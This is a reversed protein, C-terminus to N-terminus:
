GPGPASERRRRGEARRLLARPAELPHGEEPAPGEPEPFLSSLVGIWLTAWYLPFALLMVVPARGPRGHGWALLRMYGAGYCLAGLLFGLNAAAVRAPTGPDLPVLTALYVLVVVRPLRPVRPFPPPTVPHGTRIGLLASVFWAFYFWMGGAALFFGAPFVLLDKVWSARAAAPAVGPFHDIPSTPPLIARAWGASWTAGDLLWGPFLEEPKGFGALEGFAYTVVGLGFGALLSGELIRRAVPCEPALARGAAVGPLAFLFLHLVGEIPHIVLVAASGVLGALAGRGTGHRLTALAYPIPCLLMGFLGLTLAYDVLHVVAAIAAFMAPEAVRRARASGPRSSLM